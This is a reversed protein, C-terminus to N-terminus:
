TAEELRCRIRRSTSRMLCRHLCVLQRAQVPDAFSVRVSSRACMNGLLVSFGRESFREVYHNADLLQEAAQMTLRSVPGAMVTLGLTLTVLFAIPALIPVGLRPPAMSSSVPTPAPKCFAEEWLRAMSLVTDLERCSGRSRTRLPWCWDDTWRRSSERPIWVASSYLIM